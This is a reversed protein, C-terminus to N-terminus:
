SAVVPQHLPHDFAGVRERRQLPHLLVLATGPHVPHGHVVQRRMQCRVPFPEPLLQERPGILRLRHLPLLDLLGAPTRPCEAERRHQVPEDLLAQQLHQM